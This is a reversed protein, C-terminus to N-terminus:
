RQQDPARVACYWERTALKLPKIRWKVKGKVRNSRKLAIEIIFVAFEEIALIANPQPTLIEDQCCFVHGKDVTQHLEHLFHTFSVKEDM